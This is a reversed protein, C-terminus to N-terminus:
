SWMLSHINCTYSYTKKLVSYEVLLLFLGVIMQLLGTEFLSM